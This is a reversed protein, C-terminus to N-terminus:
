LKRKDNNIYIKISCIATETPREREREQSYLLRDSGYHPWMKVSWNWTNKVYCEKRECFNFYLNEQIIVISEFRCIFVNQMTEFVINYFCIQHLVYIICPFTAIRMRGKLGRRSTLSLQGSEKANEWLVGLFTTSRLCFSKVYETQRM